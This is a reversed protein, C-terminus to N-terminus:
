FWGCAVIFITIIAIGVLFVAEFFTKIPDMIAGKVSFMFGFGCTHFAAKAKSTM